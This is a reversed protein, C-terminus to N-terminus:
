GIDLGKIIAPLNNKIQEMAALAVERSKLPSNDPLDEFANNIEDVVIEAIQDADAPQIMQEQIGTQTDAVNTFDMEDGLEQDDEKTKLAYATILQTDLLDNWREWSDNTLAGQVWRPFMQAYEQAKELERQSNIIMKELKNLYVQARRRKEGPEAYAEGEEKLNKKIYSEFIKNMIGRKELLAL